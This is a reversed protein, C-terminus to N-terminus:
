MKWCFCDCGVSGGALCGESAFRGNLSVVAEEAGRHRGKLREEGHPSSTANRTWRSKLLM